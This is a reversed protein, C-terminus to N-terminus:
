VEKVSLVVRKCEGPELKFGTIALWGTYCLSNDFGFALGDNPEVYTVEGKGCHACIDDNEEGPKKISLMIADTDGGNDESSDRSIWVKAM